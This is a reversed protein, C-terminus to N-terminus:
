VTAEADRAWVQVSAFFVIARLQGSQLWSVRRAFMNQAAWSLAGALKSAAGPQLIWDRLAAEIVRLWKVIHEPRPTCSMGGENILVELGLIVLPRRCTAYELKRNSVSKKGLVLRVLEAFCQMSHELCEDQICCFFDDVYRLLPLHLLTTAIWLLLAGIRDWAFVSAVAGFPMAWHEAKHWEGDVLFVVSAAWRDSPKIPVRRYAADIDAKFMAPVRGTQEFLSRAALFLDDIADHQWKETPECCENVGAHAVGSFACVIGFGFARM